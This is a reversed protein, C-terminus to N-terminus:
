SITCMILNNKNFISVANRSQEPTSGSGHCIQQPVTSLSVLTLYDNHNGQLHM